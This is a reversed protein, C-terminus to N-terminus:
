DNIAAIDLSKDKLFREITILRRISDFFSRSNLRIELLDLENYFMFCDYIM